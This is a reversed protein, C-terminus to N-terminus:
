WLWLLAMYRAAKGLTIFILARIFSIKLWGAALCLADGILPLWSLLLAPAGHREIWSLARSHQKSQWRKKIWWGIAWTSIGGLSNGVTAVILLTIDDHVSQQDLLILLAESGGPLLTSSLLASIFLATLSTDM